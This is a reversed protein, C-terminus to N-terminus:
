GGVSYSSSGNSVGRRTTAAKAMTMRTSHKVGAGIPSTSVPPCYDALLRQLAAGLSHGSFPKQLFAQGEIDPTAPYGSLFLVRIGPDRARLRRALEVGNVGPMVMDTVLADVSGGSDFACLAEAADGASIVRYGFGSLTSTLYERVDPDDEVLLITALPPAATVVAPEPSAPLSPSAPTVVPLYIKFVTGRGAATYVLVEGGAERVIEHVTALGLGTGKGDRKTTFFPDFIRDVIARDIGSGCDAVSFQLYTGPPLAKPSATVDEFTVRRADVVLRGGNPMADRANLVLNMVLQEFRAREIPVDGAAPELRTILTVDEGIMRRLMDALGTVIAEPNSTATSADRHRCYALLQEALTASRGAAHRIGTLMRETSPDWGERALLEDAYGNIVTLLNSFDHVIGSALQGIAQVRQGSRLQEAAQELEAARQEHHRLRREVRHQRLAMRVTIDLDGERFPRLLWGRPNCATAHTVSAADVRDVVFIVPIDLEHQFLHVFAADLGRQHEEGSFILQPRAVHVAALAEDPGCVVDIHRIGLVRLAACFTEAAAATPEVVMAREIVCLDVLM